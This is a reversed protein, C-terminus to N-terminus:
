KNDTDYEWLQLSHDYFSCTAIDYITSTPKIVDRGVYAPPGCFSCGYAISEHEEYWTTEKVTTFNTDSFELVSFGRYMCAVLLRTSSLSDSKIRWVGGEMPVEVLPRKMSRKDWTRLYDDYSGTFLINEINPHSLISCVGAMHVKNVMQANEISIDNALGEKLSQLRTDWVKFLGDDGGTYLINQNHYDFATIWAELDHAKWRSICGKDIDENLLSYDLIKICGSSDSISIRKDTSSLRSAWDLSLQLVKGEDYENQYEIHKVLNSSQDYKYFTNTAKADAVALIQEDNSNQPDLLWKMDLIANTEIRQVEKLQRDQLQYLLLRGTRITEVPVHPANPDLDEKDVDEDKKIQDDQVVQYTGVAVLDPKQPCAEVSDASYETDIKQLVVMRDMGSLLLGLREGGAQWRM